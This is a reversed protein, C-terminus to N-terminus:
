LRVADCSEEGRCRHGGLRRHHRSGYTCWQLLCSARCYLPLLWCLMLPWDIVVHNPWCATRQILLKLLVACTEQRLAPLGEFEQHTAASLRLFSQFSFVVLPHDSAWGAATKILKCVKLGSNGYEPKLFLSQDTFSAIVSSREVRNCHIIQLNDSLCPPFWVSTVRAKWVQPRSQLTM